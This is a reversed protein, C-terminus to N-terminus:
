EMARGFFDMCAVAGFDQAIRVVWLRFGLLFLYGGLVFVCVGM